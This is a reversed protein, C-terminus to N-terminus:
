AGTPTQTPTAAAQTRLPPMGLRQRLEAAAAAASPDPSHRGPPPLPPAAPPIPAPQAAPPRPAARSGASAATEARAEADNAKNVLVSYLYGPGKLPLTLTGDDAQKIVALLAARWLAEPAQWERGRATIRERRIDSVLQALLDRVDDLRMRQKPPTHLELYRLVLGGLPLSSCLLDAVFRRVADDDIMKAVIVGLSEVSGCVSCTHLGLVAASTHTVADAASASPPVSPKAVTLM